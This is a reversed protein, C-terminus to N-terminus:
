ATTRRRRRSALLSRIRRPDRSRVENIEAISGVFGTSASNNLHSTMTM